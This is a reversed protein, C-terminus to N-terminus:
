GGRRADLKREVKGMEAGIFDRLAEYKAPDELLVRGDHLDRLTPAYKEMAIRIREDAEVPDKYKRRIEDRHKNLLGEFRDERRRVDALLGAHGLKLVSPKTAYRPQAKVLRKLGEISQKQAQLLVAVNKEIDLIKDYDWLDPRAVLVEHITAMQDIFSIYEDEIYSVPFRFGKRAILGRANMGHRIEHVVIHLTKWALIAPIDIEPVSKRRLEGVGDLLMERNLYMSRERDIYLGLTKEPIKLGPMVVKLDIDERKVFDFHDRTTELGALLNVLSKLYATSMADWGPEATGAPVAAALILAFALAAKPM